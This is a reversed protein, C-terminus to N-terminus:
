GMTKMPADDLSDIIWESVRNTEEAVKVNVEDINVEFIEGLALKDDPQHTTIAEKSSSVKVIDVITDIEMIEAINDSEEGEEGEESEVVIQLCEPDSKWDLPMM